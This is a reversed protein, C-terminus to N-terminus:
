LRFSKIEDVSYLGLSNILEPEKIVAMVDSFDYWLVDEKEPWKWNGGCMCMVKVFAESSKLDQVIGPFYEGEYRVIVYKQLQISSSVITECVSALKNDINNKSKNHKITIPDGPQNSQASQNSNATKNKSIRKAKKIARDHELKDKADKKKKHYELWQDSSAM